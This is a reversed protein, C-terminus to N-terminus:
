QIELLALRIPKCGCLWAAAVLSSFTFPLQLWVKAKTSTDQAWIRGRRASYEELVDRKNIRQYIAPGIPTIAYWWSPIKPVRSLSEWYRKRHDWSYAPLGKDTALTAKWFSPSIQAEVYGLSSWPSGSSTRDRICAGLKKATVVSREM